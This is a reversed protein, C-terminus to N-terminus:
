LVERESLRGKEKLRAALSPGDILEMAYWWVGGVQGMDIASVIGPHALRATTRAERQLRKVARSGALEPHLVKIAVPRDVALQVGRYVVGTAGRGIVADLRYGPIEPFGARQALPEPVM